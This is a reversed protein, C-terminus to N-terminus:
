DQGLVAKIAADYEEPLPEDTFDIIIGHGAFRKALREEHDPNVGRLGGARLEGLQDPTLHSATDNQWALVTQLDHGADVKLQLYTAFVEFRMPPTTGSRKYENLVTSPYSKGLLYHPTADLQLAIQGLCCMNGNSNLMASGGMEDRGERCWRSRWVKLKLEPEPLKKEEM